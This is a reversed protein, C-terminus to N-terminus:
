SMGKKVLLNIIGVGIFIAIVSFIWSFAGFIPVLAALGAQGDGDIGYGQNDFGDIDTKHQPLTSASEGTQEELETFYDIMPKLYLELRAEADDICDQISLSENKLSKLVLEFYTSMAQNIADLKGNTSNLLAIVSSFLANAEEQAAQLDGLRQYISNCDSVIDGYFQSLIQSQASIQDAMNELAALEDSTSTTIITCSPIYFDMVPTTAYDFTFLNNTSVRRIGIKSVPAYSEAVMSAKFTVGESIASSPSGVPTFFDLSISSTGENGLNDEYFLEFSNPDKVTQYFAGTSVRAYMSVYLGIAGSFWEDSTLVFKNLYGYLTASTGAPVNVRISSFVSNSGYFPASVSSVSSVVNPSADRCFVQIDLAASVSPSDGEAAFCPVTLSFCLVLAAILAGARRFFSKM